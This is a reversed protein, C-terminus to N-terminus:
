IVIIIIFLSAKLLLFQGKNLMLYQALCKVHMLENLGRLLALLQAKGGEKSKHSFQPGHFKFLKDLVASFFAYKLTHM